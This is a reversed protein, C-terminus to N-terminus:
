HTAILKILQDQVSEVTIGTMCAMKETHHCVRKLCPSCAVPHQAVKVKPSAPATKRSDTAGFLVLTPTGLAAALHAPGSDMSVVARAHQLIAMLEGLPMKGRLDAINIGPIPFWPGHGVVACTYEPLLAALREYHRWPWLKTQWRSYPHFVLYPKAVLECPPQQTARLQFDDARGTIGLHSLACLYRECAALPYDHIIETYALRAGERASHLGLRRPSKTARAMIGSRALGQLDIVLDYREAALAQAWRWMEGLSGPLTWRERPYPIVKDICPHRSLLEQFNENIIWHVPSNPWRKKLGCAVPLAQVVDGLASPKIILIKTPVGSM